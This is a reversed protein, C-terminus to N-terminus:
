PHHLVLHRGNDTPTSVVPSPIALHHGRCRVSPSPVPSSSPHRPETDGPSFGSRPRAQRPAPTPKTRPFTRRPHQCSAYRVPSHSPAVCPEARSPARTFCEMSCRTHTCTAPELYSFFLVPGLQAPRNPSSLLPLPPPFNPRPSFLSFSAWNSCHAKV